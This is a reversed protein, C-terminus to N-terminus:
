ARGGFSASAIAFATRECNSWRAVLRMVGVSTASGVGERVAVRWLWFVVGLRAWGFGKTAGCGARREQAVREDRRAPCCSLARTCYRGLVLAVCRLM